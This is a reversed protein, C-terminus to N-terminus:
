NDKMQQTRGLYTNNQATHTVYTNFYSLIYKVNSIGVSCATELKLDCMFNLTTVIM